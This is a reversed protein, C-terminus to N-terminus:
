HASSLVVDTTWNAPDNGLSTIRDLLAKAGGIATLPAPEPVPSSVCITLGNSDKCTNKNQPPAGDGDAYPSGTKFAVIMVVPASSHNSGAWYTLDGFTSQGDYDVGGGMLDFGEPVTTLRIPMPVSRDQQVVHGAAKLAQEQWDARKEAHAVTIELWQGGPREWALLAIDGATDTHQTIRGDPYGFWFAKVAGPVKAPVKVRPVSADQSPMSKVQRGSSDKLEHDPEANQPSVQLRFGSSEYATVASGAVMEGGGGGLAKMDPPLYGFQWHTTVPDHPDLVASQAGAETAATGGGQGPGAHGASGAPVLVGVALGTAALVATGGGLAAM